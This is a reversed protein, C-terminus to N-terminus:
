NSMNDAHIKTICRADQWTVNISPKINKKKTPHWYTHCKRVKYDCKAKIENLIETEHKITLIFLNQNQNSKFKNSQELCSERWTHYVYYWAISRSSSSCKDIVMVDILHCESTWCLYSNHGASLTPANTNMQRDKLTKGRAWFHHM